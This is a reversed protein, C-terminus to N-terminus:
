RTGAGPKDLVESLLRDWVRKLQDLCWASNSELIVRHERDTRQLIRRLLDPLDSESFLGIHRAILTRYEAIKDAPVAPLLARELEDALNSCSAIQTSLWGPDASNLWRAVADAISSLVRHRIFSTFFDLPM